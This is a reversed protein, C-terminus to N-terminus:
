DAQQGLSFSVQKTATSDQLTVCDMYTLFTILCKGASLCVRMNEAVIGGLVSLSAASWREEGSKMDTPVTSHFLLLPLLIGTM